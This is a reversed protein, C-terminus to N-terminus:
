TSDASNLKCLTHYLRQTMRVDEMADHIGSPDPLPQDGFHEAVSKLKFNVMQGRKETLMARQAAMNMVDISPHWFWSAFYQDAQREWWSRLMACDFQANYGIFWLKDNKDFKNVLQALFEEIKAKAEKATPFRAFEEMTVGGVRLAELTIDAQPLPQFKLHFERREKGELMEGSPTEVIMGIQWPCHRYHDLGTTELDVFCLKSM